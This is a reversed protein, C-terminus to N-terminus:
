LTSVNLASLDPVALLSLLPAVAGHKIVRDRLASGDGSYCFLLLFQIVNEEFWSTIVMILCFLIWDNVLLTELPGSPKSASTSTPPHSWALSPLSPGAGWLLLQRILPGLPSTPWLGPLRLSSQLATQWGWSPLLSPSWGLVSSRTLPPIGRVHCCNGTNSVICYFHTMSSTMQQKQSQLLHWLVTSKLTINGHLRHLRCSPSWTVATWELSFRKLQGSGPPRGITVCWSDHM